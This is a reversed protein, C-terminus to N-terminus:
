PVAILRGNLNQGRQALGRGLYGTGTALDLARMGPRMLGRRMLRQFLFDPYGARHRAYDGATRGFDASFETKDDM